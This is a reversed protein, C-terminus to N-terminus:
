QSLSPSFAWHHGPALLPARVTPTCSELGPMQSNIGAFCDGLVAVDEQQRDGAM